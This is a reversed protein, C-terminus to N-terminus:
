VTGAMEQCGGGQIELTHDTTVNSFTYDQPGGTGVSFAPTPNGDIYIDATCCDTNTITFTQNAGNVVTVNGSPSVGATCGALTVTTVITHTVIPTATATPTATPTPTPTPPIREVIKQFTQDESRGDSFTCNFVRQESSPLVVPYPDPFSGNVMVGADVQESESSGQDEWLEAIVPVRDIDPADLQDTGCSVSITEGAIASAPADIPDDDHILMVEFTDLELNLSIDTRLDIIQSISRPDERTLTADLTIRYRYPPVFLTLSFSLPPTLDEIVYPGLTPGVEADDDGLGVATVTVGVAKARPDSSGSINLTFTQQQLNRSTSYNENKECGKVFVAM